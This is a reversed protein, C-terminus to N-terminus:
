LLFGLAVLDLFGFARFHVQRNVTLAACSLPNLDDQM